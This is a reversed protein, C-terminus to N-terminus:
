SSAKCGGSYALHDHGGVIGASAPIIVQPREAIDDALGNLIVQFLYRRGLDDADKLCGLRAHDALRDLFQPALLLYYQAFRLNVNLNVKQRLVGGDHRRIRRPTGGDSLVGLCM